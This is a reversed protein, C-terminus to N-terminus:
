INKPLVLRVGHDEAETSDRFANTHQLDSRATDFHEWHISGTYRQAFDLVRIVPTLKESQSLAKLATLYDDRYVTPIIIRQEDQAVFEANMMIRAARGNGDFFPHVESILFMMFVARHFPAELGRYMEFGKALTGVVLDPAVFVTTGARNPKSKFEGPRKDSRLEMFTAHREKL